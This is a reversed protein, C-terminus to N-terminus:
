FIVTDAGRTGILRKITSIIADKRANLAHIEEENLYPALFTRVKEQDWALLRQYLGKSCRSIECDALTANKPAFAQSFDVRYVKWTKQDLLIDQVNECSDYVLNEFVRLNDMAQGFAAADTPRIDREKREQESISHDVFVQLSGALDDIKREVVPPVFGLKLYNSLEYAALEYRYSDALPEPRPRNIYKFIAKRSVGAQELTIRWPATRGLAEPKSIDAIAATALYQEMERRTIAAVRDETTDGQFSSAGARQASRAAYLDFSGEEVVLATALGRYIRNIGTDINYVRGQFHRISEIGSVPNKEGYQFFNHGTVMTRAKLRDLVRIVENQTATEDKAALGRFWLPSLSDYVIKPDISEELYGQDNSLRAFYRLESRLDNNIDCLARASYKESIGAHSFVIDNIKIVANKRLLWKGYTGNFNRVYAKRAEADTKLLKQWFLRFRGDSAFNLGQLEAQAKEEGSLGALYEKNKAKQSKEPLFSFFQDVTVYDPYDFARGTINLEEHNGLLVHVMGGAAEAEKELRMLLDLVGKAAPGRDMIDGTQVLHTKGGTWHLGSDVLGTGELLPLFNEYDGHIDGIAIIKEIGTWVCPIEEAPISLTCALLTLFVCLL